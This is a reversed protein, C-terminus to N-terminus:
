RKCNKSSENIVGKDLVTDVTAMVYAAKIAKDIRKDHCNDCIIHRNGDSCTALWGSFTDVWNRCEFCRGSVTNISM